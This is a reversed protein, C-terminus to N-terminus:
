IHIARGDADLAAEMMAESLTPHAHVTRQIDEATAAMSKALGLEAIM